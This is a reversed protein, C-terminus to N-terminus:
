GRKLEMIFDWKDGRSYVLAFEIPTSDELFCVREIALLPGGKKINLLSADERNATTSYVRQSARVIRLGLDELAKTLSQTSWDYNKEYIEPCLIYPLYSIQIAMPENDALRVRKLKIVKDAKNLRLINQVRLTPKKLEIEVLRAGPEMGRSTIEETYSLLSGSEEHIRPKAIFTGKGRERRLLGEYVLRNTAERVTTRSVGYKEALEQETFFPQGAKYDGKLILERVLETLQYSLPLSANRNLKKRM